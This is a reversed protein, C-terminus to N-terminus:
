GRQARFFPPPLGALDVGQPLTDFPQAGPVPKVSPTHEIRHWAARPSLVARALGLDGVYSSNTGLLSISRGIPIRQRRVESLEVVLPPSSSAYQETHHM